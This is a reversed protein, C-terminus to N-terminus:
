EFYKEKLQNKTINGSMLIDLSDDGENFLLDIISMYPEFKGYLQNYEPHNYDQFYLNINNNKFSEIDAYDTGLKGFIYLNVEMQKCMDLVLDSKNGQFNYDKMKIIKTRIGLQFLIYNLIYFNLDTLYKWERNYLDEFFDCYRNFYKAKKYNNLISKWHKKTWNENNNIEIQAITKNLYGKKLVPVTLLLKGQSSKIYNRSIFDKPVYQVQDFYVFEDALAIKHYLGLYGLFQPQHATLIKISM